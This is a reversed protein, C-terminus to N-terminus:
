ATFVTAKARETASPLWSSIAAVAAKMTATATLKQHL